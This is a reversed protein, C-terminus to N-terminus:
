GAEEKRFRTGFGSRSVSNNRHPSFHPAAKEELLNILYVASSSSKDSHQTQSAVTL